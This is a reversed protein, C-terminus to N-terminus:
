MILNISKWKMTKSSIEKNREIQERQEERQEEHGM